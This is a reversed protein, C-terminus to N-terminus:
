CETGSLQCQFLLMLLCAYVWAYMLSYYHAMVGTM